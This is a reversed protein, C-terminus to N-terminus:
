SLLAAVEYNHRAQACSLNLFLIQPLSCGIITDDLMEPPPKAPRPAPHLLRCLVAGEAIERDDRPTKQMCRLSEGISVVLKQRVFPRSCFTSPRELKLFTKLLDFLTM